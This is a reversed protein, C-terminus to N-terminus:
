VGCELLLFFSCRHSCKTLPNMMRVQLHKYRKTNGMGLLILYIDRPRTELPWWKRKTQVSKPQVNLLLLHTSFNIAMPMSFSTYEQLTPLTIVRIKEDNSSIILRSMGAHSHVNIANVISTGFQTFFYRITVIRLVSGSSPLHRVVM